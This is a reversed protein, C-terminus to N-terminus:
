RSLWCAVANAVAAAVVVWFTANLGNVRAVLGAFLTFMMTRTWYIESMIKNDNSM